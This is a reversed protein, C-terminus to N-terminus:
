SPFANGSQLPHLEATSRLVDLYARTERQPTFERARELCAAGMRALTDPTAHVFRTL